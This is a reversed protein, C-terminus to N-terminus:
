TCVTLDSSPERSVSVPRSVKAVLSVPVPALEEPHQVYGMPKKGYYQKDNHFFQAPNDFFQRYGFIARPM